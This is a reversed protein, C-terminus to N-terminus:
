MLKTIYRKEIDAILGNIYSDDQVYGGFVFIFSKCSFSSRGLVISQGPSIVHSASHVFWHEGDASGFLYFSFPKTDGPNIWGYLLTRMIKKFSIMEGFKLPRTEAHIMIEQDPVTLEQTLDYLNFLTDEYETGYVTPFDHIFTAWTQTIRYWSKAALNFVYSYNYAPNCVIIEKRETANLLSVNVFAINADMAYTAFSDGDAYLSPSYVNADSIIKDYINLGTLPSIAPGIIQDSIAVPDRGSIIMLGENSLFIVGGDIGLISKASICVTGSLPRVSQILIDGNGIDLAWIGKTTFTLIPFQGFQGPSLPIANTAMGMIFGEVRYSNIAPFYFPNQFETAQARDGDWYTKSVVPSLITYNTYPGIVKPYGVGVDLTFHFVPLAFSFNMAIVQIMAITKIHRIEGGSSKYWLDCQTCRADPYGLVDRLTFQFYDPSSDKYYTCSEWESLVRKTGETTQIDYSIAIFYEPGSVNDSGVFLLGRLSQGTYLTNKVNGLFIRQNYAFLRKAFLRHPSLNGPTMVTGSSIMSTDHISVNAWTEAILNSLGIKKVSFYLTEDSYWTLEETAAVAPLTMSYHQDDAMAIAKLESLSKSNTIYINFSAVIGKYQAQLAILDASSINIKYQLDYGIFDINATDYAVEAHRYGEIDSSIVYAPISHMVLSGDFLEWACRILYKGILYGKKSKRAFIDQALGKLAEDLREMFSEPPTHDIQASITEDDTTNAVRQFQILPMDPLFADFSRYDEDDPEYLMVYTKEGSQDSIMCANGVHSFTADGTIAQLTLNETVLVDNEYIAYALNAGSIGWFAYVTESIIHKYMIIFQPSSDLQLKEAVPRLAGNTFRMNILDLLGDPLADNPRRDIGKLSIPMRLQNEKTAM